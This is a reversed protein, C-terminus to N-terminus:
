AVLGDVYTLKQSHHFGHFVDDPVIVFRLDDVGIAHGSDCPEVGAFCCGALFVGGEFLRFYKEFGKSGADCADLYFM